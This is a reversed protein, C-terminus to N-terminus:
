HYKEDNVMTTVTFLSRLAWSMVIIGYLSTLLRM